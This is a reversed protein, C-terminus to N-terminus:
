FRRKLWFAHFRTQGDPNSSSSRGIQRGVNESDIRQGLFQSLKGWFM